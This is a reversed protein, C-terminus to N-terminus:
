INIKIGPGMTSALFCSYIYQGKLVVPKSKLITNYLVDFNDILKKEGFSKKGIICHIINNKDLRYEIKGLRLEAVTRTIDMTITGSKPNPMLGKPGLIKGLKGVSSMMDPTAVVIDYDLFKEKEIRTILEEDGVIDAGAKKAESAKIDKAFVLIKLKKGTGYPLIVTGRIQQEVQRSDVNLKIHVEISEDFKSTACDIVKNIADNITYSKKIDILELKKLYVKSRKKM